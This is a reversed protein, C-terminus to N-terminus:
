PLQQPFRSTDLTAIDAGEDLARRIEGAKFEEFQDYSLNFLGQLEVKELAEEKSVGNDLYIREFQRHLINQVEKYRLSYFDGEKIKFYKKLLGVNFKERESIVHDDLVLNIYAILLDLLEEKIDEVRKIQYGDLVRQINKRDLEKTSVLKAIEVIYSSLGEGSLITAFAEHLRLDNSSLEKPM